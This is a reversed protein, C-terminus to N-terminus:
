SVVFDNDISFIVLMFAYMLSGVLVKDWHEWKKWKNLMGFGGLLVGAASLLGMTWRFASLNDDNVAM